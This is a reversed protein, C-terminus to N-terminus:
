NAQFSNKLIVFVKFGFLRAAVFKLDDKGGCRIILKIKELFSKRWFEHTNEAYRLGINLSRVVVPEIRIGRANSEIFIQEIMWKTSLAHRSIKAERERIAQAENVSDRVTTSDSHIRYRILSNNIHHIRLGLINIVGGITGDEILLKNPSFLFTKLFKTEYAACFGPVSLVYGNHRQAVRSRGFVFQTAKSPPFSVSSRLLTGNEDIEDHCSSLATAKTSLWAKTLADARDPYSIDDGGNVIFLHGKAEMAVEVLHNYTGVNNKSRRCIVRHPGSYASVVQQMIEFTRDTSFDDSLIVELPEYTQSLAAAVADHIYIEQNYAFLAFTVLPRGELKPLTSLADLM